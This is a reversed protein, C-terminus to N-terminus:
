DWWFRFKIRRSGSRFDDISFDAEDSRGILEMERCITKMNHDALPRTSPLEFRDIYVVPSGERGVSITYGREGNHPSGIGYWRRPIVRDIRELADIVEPANFDNYRDIQQIFRIAADYDLEIRFQSSKEFVSDFLDDVQHTKHAAPSTITQTLM